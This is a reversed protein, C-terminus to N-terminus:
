KKTSGILIDATCTTCCHASCSESQSFVLFVLILREWLVSASVCNVLSVFLSRPTLPVDTTAAKKLSAAPSGTATKPIAFFSGIGSGSIHTPSSERTTNKNQPNKESSGREVCVNSSDDTMTAESNPTTEVDVTEVCLLYPAREKTNFVISELPVVAAIRCSASPDKTDSCQVGSLSAQFSQGRLDRNFMAHFLVDLSPQRKKHNGSGEAKTEDVSSPASGCGGLLSESRQQLLALEVRLAVKRQSPELDRLKESISVLHAVFRRNAALMDAYGEEKCNRVVFKNVLRLETPSLRPFFANPSNGNAYDGKEGSPAALTPLYLLIGPDIGRVKMDQIQQAVAEPLVQPFVALRPLCFLM